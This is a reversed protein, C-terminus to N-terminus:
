IHLNYHALVQGQGPLRAFGSQWLGKYSSVTATNTQFWSWTLYMYLSSAYDGSRLGAWATKSGGSPLYPLLSVSLNTLATVPIDLILGELGCGRQSEFAGLEALNLNENSELSFFRRTISGSYYGRLAKHCVLWDDAQQRPSTTHNLDVKVKAWNLIIAGPSQCLLFLLM